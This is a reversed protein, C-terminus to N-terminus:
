YHYIYGSHEVRIKPTNLGALDRLINMREQEKNYWYQYEQNNLKHTCGIHGRKIYGLTDKEFNESKYGYVWLLDGVNCPVGINSYSKAESPTILSPAYQTGLPVAFPKGKVFVVKKINPNFSAIQQPINKYSPKPNTATCGNFLVISILSYFLTM